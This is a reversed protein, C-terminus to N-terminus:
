ELNARPEEEGQLTKQKEVNDLKEQFYQIAKDRYETIQAITKELMINFKQIDEINWQETDGEGNIVIEKNAELKAGQYFEIALNCSNVLNDKMFNWVYEEWTGNQRMQNQFKMSCDFCRKHINWFFSDFQKKGMIRGCQPCFTPMLGYKQKSFQYVRKDNDVTYLEGHEDM